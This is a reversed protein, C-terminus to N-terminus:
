SPWLKADNRAVAAKFEVFFTEFNGLSQAFLPAILAIFGISLIWRFLKM